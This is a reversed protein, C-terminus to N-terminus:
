SGIYRLVEHGFDPVRLRAVSARIREMQEDGLWVLLANAAAVAVKASVTYVGPLSFKLYWFWRADTGSLM